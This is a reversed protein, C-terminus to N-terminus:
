AAHAPSAQREPSLLIEWVHLRHSRFCGASALLYFKWMRYFRDGYKARLSFWHENFNRFWAMLTKDYDSAWDENRQACFIGRTASEIQRASPLHSGPFIYRDFWPDTSRGSQDSGITALFFKGTESLVSRVLKFYERYNKLGVHEFMGVSVVRDFYNRIDRYDQLRLEVPLDACFKRALALQERSLTVGTVHAGFHMAAYQALGGWGCGIDLLTMGPRLDLARCVFDLNAQQADALDSANKWLGSSYMMRRDLMSSFLDNGLDYHREISKASRSKTQTNSLLSKLYLLFSRWNWAARSEIGSASVKCFFNDLEASDWWGDMFSEGLGLSGEKLVRPYFRDDFVLIDWPRNGNVRVDASALLRRVIKESVADRM